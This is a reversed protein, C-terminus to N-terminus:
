ACRKRPAPIRGIVKLRATKRVTRVEPCADVHASDPAELMREVAERNIRNRIFWQALERTVPHGFEAEIERLEIESIEAYKPTERM